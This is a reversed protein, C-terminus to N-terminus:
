FIARYRIDNRTPAPTRGAHIRQVDPRQQITGYCWSAHDPGPWDTHDLALLFFLALFQIRLSRRRATATLTRMRAATRFGPSKRGCTIRSSSSNRTSYLLSSSRLSRVRRTRPGLGASPSTRRLQDLFRRPHSPIGRRGMQGYRWRRRKNSTTGPM